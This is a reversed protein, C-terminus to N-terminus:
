VLRELVSFEEEEETVFFQIVDSIGKENHSKEDDLSSRVLELTM